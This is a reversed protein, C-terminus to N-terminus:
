RRHSSYINVLSSSRERRPAVTLMNGSKSATKSSFNKGNSNSSPQCGNANKNKGVIGGCKEQKERRPMTPELMDKLPHWRQIYTKQLTVVEQWHELIKGRTFMSGGLTTFGIPKDKEPFPHHKMAIVKVCSMDLDTEELKFNFSEQFQPNSSKKITETKKRKVEKTQQMFVVKIYTDPPTDKEGKINRGEVVNVSLRCLTANFCVSLLVEPLEATNVFKQLDATLSLKGHTLDIDKIELHSVGVVRHKRNVDINYVLIRLTRDFLSQPSVQFVCNECFSPNLEAFTDGNQTCKRESREDPLLCVKLYTKQIKGAEPTVKPLNRIRHIYVNFSETSDDYHANYYIRGLHNEPFTEKTEDEPNLYLSPNIGGFQAYIEPDPEVLISPKSCRRSGPHSSPTDLSNSSPHNKIGGVAFLSGRSHSRSQRGGHNDNIPLNPTLFSSNNLTTSGRRSGPASQAPMNYMPLGLTNACLSASRSTRASPVDLDYGLLVSGSARRSGLGTVRLGANSCRRSNTGSGGRSSTTSKFGSTASFVDSLFNWGKNIVPASTPTNADSNRRSDGAGNGPNNIPLQSNRRSSGPANYTGQYLCTTSSSM